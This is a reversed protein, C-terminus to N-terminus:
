SEENKTVKGHTVSELTMTRDMSYAMVWAEDESSAEVEAIHKETWELKYKM